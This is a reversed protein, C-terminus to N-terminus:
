QGSINYVGMIYYDDQPTSGNTDIYLNFYNHGILKTNADLALAAFEGTGYDVYQEDLAAAYGQISNDVAGVHVIAVGQMYFTSAESRRVFDIRLIDSEKM